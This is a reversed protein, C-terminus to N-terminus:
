QLKWTEQGSVIITAINNDYNNVKKLIDLGTMGPLNYDITVIDPHLHIHNFFDEGRQFHIVDFNNERELTRKIMTGFMLDDEITFIKIMHEM